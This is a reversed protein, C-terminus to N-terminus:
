GKWPFLFDRFGRNLYEDKEDADDTLPAGAREAAPGHALQDLAAYKRALMEYASTVMALVMAGYLFFFVPAVVLALATVAVVQFALGMAFLPNDLVLLATLKLTEAVSAKKQVLTPIVLVGTLLTFLLCWVALGAIGYGLWPATDRLKTAYFWASTVLCVSVVAYVCGLSAARRWYLRVGSFLTGLSGDRTDILEKVMHALGASLVPLIIGFGLVLAPVGVVLQTGTDGTYFAAWGLFGALAVPMVWILSALILKGLHDYTVWFAMKLSRALM